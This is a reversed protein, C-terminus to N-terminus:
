TETTIDGEDIVQIKRKKKEHEEAQGPRVEVNKLM